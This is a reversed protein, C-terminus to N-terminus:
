AGVAPHRPSSSQPSGRPVAPSHKVASPHSHVCIPFPPNSKTRLCLPDGLPLSTLTRLAAQEPLRISPEPWRDGLYFLVLNSLNKSMETCFLGASRQNAFRSTTPM